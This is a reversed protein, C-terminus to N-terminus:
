PDPGYCAVARNRSTKGPLWPKINAMSLLLKTKVLASQWKPLIVISRWSGSEPRNMNPTRGVKSPGCHSATSSGLHEIKSMTTWLRGPAASRRGFLHPLSLAPLKLRHPKLTHAGTSGIIYLIGRQLFTAILRTRM